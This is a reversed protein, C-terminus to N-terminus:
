TPVAEDVADHNGHTKVKGKQVRVFEQLQRRTAAFSDRIAVYADEHAHNDGHNQNVVLDGHGPVTMHVRVQFLNGKSHRRHAEDVVVRCATIRKHYRELKQVEARIRQEIAESPDIGQFVIELPVTM